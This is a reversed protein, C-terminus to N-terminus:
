LSMLSNIPCFPLLQPHNLFWPRPLPSSATVPLLRLTSSDGGQCVTCAAKRSRARPLTCGPVARHSPFPSGPQSSESILSIANGLLDYCCSHYEASRWPPLTAKYANILESEYLVGRLCTCNSGPLPSILLGPDWPTATCLCCVCVPLDWLVGLVPKRGPTRNCGLLEWEWHEVRIVWGLERFVRM